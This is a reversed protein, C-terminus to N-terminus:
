RRMESHAMAAAEAAKSSSRRGQQQKHNKNQSRYQARTAALDDGATFSQYPCDSRDAPRDTRACCSKDLNLTLEPRCAGAVRLDLLTRTHDDFSHVPEQQV